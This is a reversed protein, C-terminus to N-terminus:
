ASQRSRIVEWRRKEPCCSRMLERTCQMRWMRYRPVRRLHTYSVSQPAPEGIAGSNGFKVVKAGAPAPKTEVTDAGGETKDTAQASAQASTTTQATSSGCGALTGVAMAATLALALKKKM